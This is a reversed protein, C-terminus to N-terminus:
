RYEEKWPLELTTIQAARAKNACDVTGRSQPGPFALCIDAGLSVMYSNRAPGLINGRPGRMAPHREPFVLPQSEAWEYAYQDVGGFPCKGDVVVIPWRGLLQQTCERLIQHVFWAGSQPWDRWGTVLVRYPSVSM